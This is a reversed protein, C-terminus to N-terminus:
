ITNLYYILLICIRLLSKNKISKWATGSKFVQKKLRGTWWEDSMPQKRGIRQLSTTVLRSIM